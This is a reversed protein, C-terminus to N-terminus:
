TMEISEVNFVWDREHLCEEQPSFPALDKPAPHPICGAYKGVLHVEGKSPDMVFGQYGAYKMNLIDVMAWRDLRFAKMGLKRVQGELSDAIEELDDNGYGLSWYKPFEGTKEGEKRLKSAKAWVNKSCDRIFSRVGSYMYWGARYCELGGLNPLEALPCVIVTDAGFNDDSFDWKDHEAYHKVKEVVQVFLKRGTEEGIEGLTSSAESDTNFKMHACFCREADLKFYVEVGTGCKFTGISRKDTTFTLTGGSGEPVYRFDESTAM